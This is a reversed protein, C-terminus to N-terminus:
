MRLYVQSALYDIGFTEVHRRILALPIGLPVDGRQFDDIATLLEAKAAADLRETFYGAMHQLVNAHTGRTPASALAALFQETYRREVDGRAMSAASGVLSGLARYAAPSHAMVLLKHASHFRVLDGVTWGDDFLRRLDSADVTM